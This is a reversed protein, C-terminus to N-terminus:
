DRKNMKESPSKTRLILSRMTKRVILVGWFAQLGVLFCGACWTLWALSASLWSSHHVAMVIFLGYRLFVWAQPLFLCCRILLFSVAFCLQFVTYLEPYRKMGQDPYEKMVETAALFISSVETVGLMFPVYYRIGITFCALYLAVGAVAIHHAYNILREGKHKALYMICGLILAWTQKAAQLCSLPYIEPFGAIKDEISPDSPLSNFYYVGLIAISVNGLFHTIKHSGLHVELLTANPYLYRGTGMAVAYITWIYIVSWSLVPFLQHTLFDSDAMSVYRPVKHVLVVIRGYEEGYSLSQM